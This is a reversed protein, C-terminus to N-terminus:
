KNHTRTKGRKTPRVMGGTPKSSSNGGSSMQSNGGSASGSMPSTVGCGGRLRVAEDLLVLLVSGRLHDWVLWVTARENGQRGVKMGMGNLAMECQNTSGVTPRLM